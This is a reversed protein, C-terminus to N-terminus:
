RRGMPGARVAQMSQRMYRASDMTTIEAGPMPGAASRLRFGPLKEGVEPGSFFGEEPVRRQGDSIRLPGLMGFEDRYEYQLREAAM